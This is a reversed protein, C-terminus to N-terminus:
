LSLGKLTCISLNFMISNIYRKVFNFFIQFSIKEVGDVNKLSVSVGPLM